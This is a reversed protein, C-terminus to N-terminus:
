DKKNKQLVSFQNAHEKSSRNDYHKGESGLISELEM